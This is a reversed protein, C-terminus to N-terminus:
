LRHHVTYYRDYENKVKVNGTGKGTVEASDLYSFGRYNGTEHLFSEVFICIAEKREQSIPQLLMNNARTVMDIVKVSKKM